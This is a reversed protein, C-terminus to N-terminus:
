TPKSNCHNLLKSKVLDYWEHQLISFLLIDTRGNGAKKPLYDRLRGEAQAGIAAIARISNTNEGHIGFGVRLLGLREFLFELLLYKCHKNLGTGQYSTGLWTHGLKVHKYALSMEYISTSGAYQESAKDFIVFPYALGKRRKQISEELNNVLYTRGPQIGLLYTWIASEDGFHALLDIHDKILPSLRVQSNELIYDSSYDFDLSSRM